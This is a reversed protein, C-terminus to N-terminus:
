TSITQRPTKIFPASAVGAAEAASAAQASFCTQESRQLSPTLRDRRASRNQEAQLKTQDYFDDNSLRGANFTPRLSDTRSRDLSVSVGGALTQPM